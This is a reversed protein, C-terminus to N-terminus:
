HILDQVVIEKRSNNGRTSVALVKHMHWYSYQDDRKLGYTKAIYHDLAYPDAAASKDNVITFEDLIYEKPISANVLVEAQIDTPMSDPLLSTQRHKDDTECFMMKFDEVYQESLKVTSIKELTAFQDKSAIEQSVYSAANTFCFACPFTYLIAPDLFFIVTSGTKDRNQHRYLMRSNPYEISVSVSWSDNDGRIQDHYHYNGSLYRDLQDRTLFGFKRISDANHVDTFHVLFKIKRSVVIDRIENLIKQNNQQFKQVSEAYQSLEINLKPPLKDLPKQPEIPKEPKAESMAALEGSEKNFFDLDGFDLGSLFSSDSNNSNDTQHKPKKTSSKSHAKDPVGNGDTNIVLRDNVIASHLRRTSGASEYATGIIKGVDSLSIYQVDVGQDQLFYEILHLEATMNLRAPNKVVIFGISKNYPIIAFISRVNFEFRIFQASNVPSAGVCVFAIRRFNSTRCLDKIQDTFSKMSLCAIPKNDSTHYACLVYGKCLYIKCLTLNPDCFFDSFRSKFFRNFAPSDVVVPWKNQDHEGQNTVASDGRRRNQQESYSM